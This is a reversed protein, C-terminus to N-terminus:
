GKVASSQLPHWRAAGVTLTIVAGAIALAVVPEQGMALLVVVLVIVLMTLKLRNPPIEPLCVPAQM